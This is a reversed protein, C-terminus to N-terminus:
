DDDDDDDDDDPVPAAPVPPIVPPPEIAPPVPPTNDQPWATGKPLSAFFRMISKGLGNPWNHPYYSGYESHDKRHPCWLLPYPALLAGYRVCNMDRPETPVPAGSYDGLKLLKDRTREGYVFPALRDKPNHLIMAAVRGRCKLHREIGGGLTAIARLVDGRACGLNNAFSAGLSYGVAFIDGICYQSRFRQVMVDFFAFDRLQNPDEGMTWWTFAYDDEDDEDPDELLGRPYVVITPRTANQELDFYGRVKRAPNTRGHFAFVLDHRINPNYGKPVVTIASRRTGIVNFESPPSAPAAKGCGDEASSMTQVALAPLPLALLLLLCLRFPM